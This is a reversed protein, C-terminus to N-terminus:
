QAARRVADQPQKRVIAPGGLVELASSLTMRDVGRSQYEGGFYREGFMERTVERGVKREVSIGVARM